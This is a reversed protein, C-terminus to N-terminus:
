VDEKQGEERGVRKGRTEETEMRGRTRQLKMKGSETLELEQEMRSRCGESHDRASMERM